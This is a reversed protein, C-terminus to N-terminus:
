FEKSERHSFILKYISLKSFFNQKEEMERRNEISYNCQLFYSKTLCVTGKNVCQINTYMCTYMGVFEICRCELFSFKCQLM